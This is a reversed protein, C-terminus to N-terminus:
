ARHPRHEGRGSIGGVQKTGGVLDSGHLRSPVRIDDRCLAIWEFIGGRELVHAEHHLAANHITQTSRRRSYSSLLRGNMPFTIYTNMLM